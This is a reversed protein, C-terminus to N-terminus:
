LYYYIFKSNLVIVTSTGITFIAIIIGYFVKIGNNLIGKM